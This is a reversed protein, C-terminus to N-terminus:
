SMPKECKIMNTIIIFLLKQTNNIHNIQIELVIRSYRITNGHQSHHLVMCLALNKLFLWPIFLLIFYLINEFTIKTDKAFDWELHKVRPRSCKTGPKLLYEVIGRGYVITFVISIITTMQLSINLTRFYYGAWLVSLPQMLLVIYAYITAYKNTDGCSQDQWMFYEALQMQIIFFFFIAVHKDYKDGIYLLLATIATVIGFNQISSRADYCMYMIYRFINSVIIGSYCLTTIDSCYLSVTYKYRIIPSNSSYLAPFQPLIINDPFPHSIPFHTPYRTNHENNFHLSGTQNVM